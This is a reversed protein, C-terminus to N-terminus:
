QCERGAGIYTTHRSRMRGDVQLTSRHSHAPGAVIDSDIRARAGRPKLQCTDSALLARMRTLRSCIITWFGLDALDHDREAFCSWTPFLPAAGRAPRRYESKPAM